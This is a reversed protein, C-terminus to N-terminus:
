TKKEISAERVELANRIESLFNRSVQKGRHIVDQVYVKKFPEKIYIYKLRDKFPITHMIIVFM